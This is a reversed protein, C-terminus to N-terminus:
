WKNLNNKKKIVKFEGKDWYNEGGGKWGDHYWGGGGGGGTARGLSDAVTTVGRGWFGAEEM